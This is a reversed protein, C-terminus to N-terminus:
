KAQSKSIASNKFQKYGFSPKPDNNISADPLSTINKKSRARQMQM